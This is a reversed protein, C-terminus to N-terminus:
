GATNPQCRGLNEILCLFRMIVFSSPIRLAAKYGPLVVHINGITKESKPEVEAKLVM